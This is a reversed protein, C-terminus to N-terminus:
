LEFPLPETIRVIKNDKMREKFEPKLQISDPNITFCTTSDVGYQSSFLEQFMKSSVEKFAWETLANDKILHEIMHNYSHGWTWGSLNIYSEFKKRVSKFNVTTWVSGDKMSDSMFAFLLALYTHSEKINCNAIISLALNINEKDRNGTYGTKNENLSWGLMTRLQNYHEETLIESDETALENINNDWVLKSINDQINNWQDLSEIYYHYTSKSDKFKQTMDDYRKLNKIKEWHYTSFWGKDVCIYAEEPIRDLQANIYHFTDERFCDKFTDAWARIDGVDGKSMYQHTFLKDFYKTSVIGYDADHFDRKVKLDFKEQLIKVKARSLHLHPFRYLVKANKLDDSTITKIKNMIEKMADKDESRSRGYHGSSNSIYHGLQKVMLGESKMYIKDGDEEIAGPDLKILWLQKLNDM